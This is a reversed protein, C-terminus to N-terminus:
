NNRLRAAEAWGARYGNEFAARITTYATSNRGFGKNNVFQDAYKRSANSVLRDVSAKPSYDAQGQIFGINYADGTDAYVEQASIYVSGFLLAALLFFAPVIKSNM